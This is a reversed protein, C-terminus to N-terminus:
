KQKQYEMSGTNHTVIVIGGFNFLETSTTVLLTFIPQNIGEVIISFNLWFLNNDLIFAIILHIEATIKKM